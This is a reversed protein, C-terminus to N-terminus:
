AFLRLAPSGQLVCVLLLDPGQLLGVVLDGLVLLESLVVAVDISLGQDLGLAM